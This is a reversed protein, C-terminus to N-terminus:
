DCFAKHAADEAAEKELQEIMDSILGKIKALQALATSNSKQALRQVFRVTAMDSSSRVQLFSYSQADAGATTEQIIKKAEAIAKLEEGRSTQEAEFTEAKEM